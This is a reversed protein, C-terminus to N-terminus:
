LSGGQEFQKKYGFFFSSVMFFIFSYISFDGVLTKNMLSLIRISTLVVFCLGVLNSSANLIHQSKRSENM